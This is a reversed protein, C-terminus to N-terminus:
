TPGRQKLHNDNDIFTNQLEITIRKKSWFIVFKEVFFFLTFKRKKCKSKYNEKELFEDYFWTSYFIFMNFWMVNRDRTVKLEGNILSFFLTLVTTTKRFFQCPQKLVLGFGYLRMLLWYFHDVHSCLLFYTLILIFSYALMWSINTLIKCSYTYTDAYDYWFIDLCFM